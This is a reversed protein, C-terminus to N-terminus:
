SLQARESRLAELEELVLARQAVVQDRRRRAEARAQEQEAVSRAAQAESAKILSDLEGICAKLHDELAVYLEPRIERIVADVSTTLERRLTAVNDNLIANLQQQGERMGRFGINLTLWGGAILIGIPGGLGILAAVNAGLFATTAVSPDFKSSTTASTRTRVRSLGGGLQVPANFRGDPRADLSGFADAVVRQVGVDLVRRVHEVVVALEAELSAAFQQKAGKSGAGRRKSLTAGVRTVVEDCAKNLTDLTAHRVRGLDRELELRSTRLNQRLEALREREHVMADVTAPDVGELLALERESSELAVGLGDACGELAHVIRATSSDGVLTQVVQALRGIGSAELLKQAVAEPYSAAQIAFTAAVPVIPADALRPAHTALLRRNEELVTEWTTPNRDTRSLVFVVSASGAAVESVFALEPATLVQGGDSVFLMLSAHQVAARARRGHVARLGGVGPTDFVTIDPLWRSTVAIRVGVPPAGEGEADPEVVPVGQHGADLPDPEVALAALAEERPGDRHTGDAYEVRATGEPLEDSPPVVAIVGTTIVEAATPSVEAGALANVLTSKGRKVEGVVVISPPPPVSSVPTMAVAVDDSMGLKQLLGVAGGLAKKQSPSMRVRIPYERPAAAKDTPM